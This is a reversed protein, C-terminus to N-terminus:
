HSAPVKKLALSALRSAIREAAAPHAQTRAAASMAALRAPNTLLSTLESLLRSPQGPESDIDKEHLMVAAGVAVM